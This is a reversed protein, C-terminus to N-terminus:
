HVDLGAIQPRIPLSLSPSTSTSPNPFPANHYEGSDALREQWAMEHEVAGPKFVEDPRSFMRMPRFGRDQATTTLLDSSSIRVSCEISVKFTPMYQHEGSDFDFVLVTEETLM